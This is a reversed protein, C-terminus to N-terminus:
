PKRTALDAPAPASFREASGKSTERITPSSRQRRPLLSFADREKNKGVAPEEAGSPEPTQLFDRKRRYQELSM